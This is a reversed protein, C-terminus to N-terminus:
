GERNMHWWIIVTCFSVYLLSVTGHGGRRSYLRGMGPGPGGRGPWFHTTPVTLAGNDEKMARLCTVRTRAPRSKPTESLGKMSPSPHLSVATGQIERVNTRTLTRWKETPFLVPLPPAERRSVPSYRMNSSSTAGKTMTTTPFPRESPEQHAM